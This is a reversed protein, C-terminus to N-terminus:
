SPPSRWAELIHQSNDGQSSIDINFTKPGESKTQHELQVKYVHIELGQAWQKKGWRIKCWFADMM